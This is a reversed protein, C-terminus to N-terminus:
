FKGYQINEKFNKRGTVSIYTSSKILLWLNAQKEKIKTLKQNVCQNIQM